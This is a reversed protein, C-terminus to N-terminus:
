SYEPRFNKILNSLNYKNEVYIAYSHKRSGAHDVLSFLQDNDNRTLHVPPTDSPRTTATASDETCAMLATRSLKGLSRELSLELFPTM